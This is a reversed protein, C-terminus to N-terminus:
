FVKIIIFIDFLFDNGEKFRRSILALSLKNGNINNIFSCIDRYNNFHVIYDNITNITIYKYKKKYVDM